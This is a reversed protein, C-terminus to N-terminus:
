ASANAQIGLTVTTIADKLIVVMRRLEPLSTSLPPLLVIINGIPRLLLGRNRAEMTVRHGVREELPYPKRTQKDEV